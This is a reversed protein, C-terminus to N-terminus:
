VGEYIIKNEIKFQLNESGYEAVYAFVNDGKTLTFWDSGKDLANLINIYHGGRLLTITKEGRVTSIIIDDGAIIGSGTIEQIKTTDIRMVERTGTNYITINRAEGLAHITIVIGIEADGDYYVTKETENEIAGFEIMSEDLSENSFVFEFLPETGYFITTNTGNEGASYFYPDPCIISISNSEDKSFIDPENSEVYGSTKAIRNDTEILFELPKKIPFYRYTRQRSDEITPAFGFLFKILINRSDLRASNYLSGDNTALNTTNINAKAPGLGEISKILLGHDPNDQALFIKISEGLYNTITISKIM